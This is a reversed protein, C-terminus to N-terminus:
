DLTRSTSTRIAGTWWNLFMKSKWDMTTQFGSGFTETKVDKPGRAEYGRHDMSPPPVARVVEQAWELSKEDYCILLVRGSHIFTREIRVSFDLKTRLIRQNIAGQIIRLDSEEMPTDDNSGKRTVVLKQNSTRVAGAYSATISTGAVEAQKTGKQEAHQPEVRGRKQKPNSTPTSQTSSSERSRKMSVSNSASPLDSGPDLTISKIGKLLRKRQKRRQNREYNKGPRWESTSGVDMSTSPNQPPTGSIQATNSKEASSAASMTAGKVASSKEKLLPSKWASPLKESSGEVRGGESTSAEKTPTSVSGSLLELVTPQSLTEDRTLPVLRVTKTKRKNEMEHQAHNKKKVPFFRFVLILFFFFFLNNKAVILEAASGLCSYAISKDNQTTAEPIGGWYM